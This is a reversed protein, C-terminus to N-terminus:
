LSSLSPKLMSAQPPNEAARSVLQFADVVQVLPVTKDGGKWKKFQLSLLVLCFLRVSNDTVPLKESYIM